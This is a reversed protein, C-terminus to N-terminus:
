RLVVKWSGDVLRLTTKGGMRKGISLIDSQSEVVAVTKNSSYNTSIIRYFRMRGLEKIKSISNKLIERNGQPNTTYALAEELNGQYMATSFQKVVYSPSGLLLTESNTGTCSVLSLCWFLTIFLKNKM